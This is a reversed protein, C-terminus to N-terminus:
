REITNKYAKAKISFWDSISTTDTYKSNPISLSDLIDLSAFIAAGLWATYNDFCPPVHFKFENIALKDKLENSIALHNLEEVLRKKFGPLMATGGIILINSALTKRLDVPSRLLTDLIMHQITQTGDIQDFFLDESSLERLQGSVQLQMVRDLNYICSSTQVQSTKSKVFCCKVKVNEILEDKSLTKSGSFFSFPKLMGNTIICDTSKELFEDINQHIKQAAINAFNFTETLLYNDAISICQTDIFGCDIVLANKQGITFLAALHTPIFCISIVQFNKFLVDALARKFDSECAISEVLVVKRDRSNVNLVEYYIKYVFEILNEKLLNIDHKYDFLNVKYGNRKIQSSIIQKPAPEHAFGCKTYAHGIDLVVAPKDILSTDLLSM